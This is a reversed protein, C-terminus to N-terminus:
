SQVARIELKMSRTKLVEILAKVIETDLNTIDLTMEKEEKSRLCMILDGAIRDVDNIYIHYQLVDKGEGLMKSFKSRLDGIRRTINEDAQCFKKAIIEINDLVKVLNKMSNQLAKSLAITIDEPSEKICGGNYLCRAISSTDQPVEKNYYENFQKLVGIYHEYEKRFYISLNAGGKGYLSTVDKLLQDLLNRSEMVKIIRLTENSMASLKEKISNLHNFVDNDILQNLENYLNQINVNFLESLKPLKQTLDGIQNAIGQNHDKLNLDSYSVIRSLLHVVIDVGYMKGKEECMKLLECTHLAYDPLNMLINANLNRVAQQSSFIKKLQERFSSYHENVQLILIDVKSKTKIIDEDNLNKLLELVQEKSLGLYEHYKTAIYIHLPKKVHEELTKLIQVVEDNIKRTSVEIFNKLAGIDDARVNNVNNQLEAIINILQLINPSIASRLEQRVEPDPTISDVLKQIRDIPELLGEKVLKELDELNKALEMYNRIIDLTHPKLYGEETSNMANM